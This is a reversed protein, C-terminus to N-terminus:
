ATGTIGASWDKVTEAMSKLHEATSFGSLTKRPKLDHDGDELWLIRISGSLAYGAVEDRTGFEDRTGQCILTPTKLEKLHQTRLNEPKGPPHFPYGLCLLGAIAGRSLLDDAVMSAVRGGMSKGGIILPGTAGLRAVAAMYEPILKEAKPPPKRTDSSRRAAMYGFEFRAIRFGAAVLAATAANMSASDMPAGAGHALLITVAADPPRDILFDQDV